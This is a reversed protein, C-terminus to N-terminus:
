YEFDDGGLLGVLLEIYSLEIFNIFLMVSM